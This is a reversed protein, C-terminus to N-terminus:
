FAETGSVVADVTVWLLMTGKMVVHNQYISSMQSWIKVVSAQQLAVYDQDRPGEM